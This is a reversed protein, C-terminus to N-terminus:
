FMQRDKKQKRNKWNRNKSAANIARWKLFKERGPFEKRVIVFRVVQTVFPVAFFQSFIIQRTQFQRLTADGPFLPPEGVQRSLAHGSSEM